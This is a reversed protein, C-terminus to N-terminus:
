KNTKKYVIEIHIISVFIYQKFIVFNFIFTIFYFIKHYIYNIEKDINSRFKFCYRIKFILYTIKFM